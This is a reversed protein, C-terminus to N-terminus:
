SKSSRHNFFSLAIVAKRGCFSDTLVCPEQRSAENARVFREFTKTKRRELRRLGLM